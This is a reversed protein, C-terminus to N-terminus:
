GSTGLNRLKVAWERLGDFDDRGGGRYRQGPLSHRARRRAGEVAPVVDGRRRGDVPLRAGSPHRRLPCRRGHARPSAMAIEYALRLAQATELVPYIVLSQFPLDYEVEMCGLLADAAHIDAPGQVKPILIGALSPGMVAHLDKVTQGTFPNQVRAFLQQSRGDYAPSIWTRARGPV